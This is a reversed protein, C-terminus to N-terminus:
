LRRWRRGTCILPLCYVRTLVDCIRQAVSMGDYIGLLVKSVPMIQCSASRVKTGTALLNPHSRLPSWAITAGKDNIQKLISMALGM